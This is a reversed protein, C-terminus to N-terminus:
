LDQAVVGLGVKFAVAEVDEFAVQGSRRGNFDDVIFVLSEVPDCVQFITLAMESGASSNVAGNPCIVVTFDGVTAFNVMEVAIFRVVVNFVELAHCVVLVHLKM